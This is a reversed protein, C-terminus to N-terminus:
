SSPGRVTVEIRGGVNVDARACAAREDPVRHIILHPEETNLGLSSAEQITVEVVEELTLCAETTITDLQKALVVYPADASPAVGELPILVVRRAAPDVYFYTCTTEGDAEGREATVTWDSLGLRDLHDHTIEQAAPLEFCGSQLGNGFSDLAAELEILQSDQRFQAGLPMWGDPVPENIPLVVVGGEPTQYAALEPAEGVQQRWLAECDAVPDGSISNIISNDIAPHGSCQVATTAAPDRLVAWAGASTLLLAAVTAALVPVRGRRRQQPAPSGTQEDTITEMVEEKLREKRAAPLSAEAPLQGLLDRPRM